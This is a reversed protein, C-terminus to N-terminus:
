GPRRTVTSTPAESEQPTSEKDRPRRVAYVYVLGILLAAATVTYADTAVKAWVSAGYEAGHRSPAWWIMRSYTVLVIALATRWAWAEGTICLWVAIPTLWVWHHSWSVPSILLGALATIWIQVWRQEQRVRVLGFALIAAVVLSVVILVGPSGGPGFWRAVAGALSQNAAYEVNGVRGSDFLLSTWYLRSSTPLVLGGIATAGLFGAFSRLVGRWEGRALLVVGFVAPVLKIAAAVGVLLGSWWRARPRGLDELVLWVLVLNIQGFTLNQWVPESFQLAAAGLLSWVLRDPGPIVISLIRGLLAANLAAWM